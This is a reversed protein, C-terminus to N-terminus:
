KERSEILEIKESSKNRKIETGRRMFKLLAGAGQLSPISHGFGTPSVGFHLELENVPKCVAELAGKVAMRSAPVLPRLSPAGAYQLDSHALYRNRWDRAFDTKGKAEVFLNEIRLKLNSEPILASLSGISLNEKKGIRPPDTLRCIHLLLDGWLVRQLDGFFHPAVSNMIIVDEESGAYLTKFDSWKVHLWALEKWLLFCLQGLDEGMRAQMRIGIDEESSDM